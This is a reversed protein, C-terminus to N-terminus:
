NPWFPDDFRDYCYQRAMSASLNDGARKVALSLGVSTDAGKPPTLAFQVAKYGPRSVSPGIPRWIYVRQNSPAKLVITAYDGAGCWYDSAGAGVRGVVEFVGQGLDQVEYRNQARWALALGPLAALAAAALITRTFHSRM